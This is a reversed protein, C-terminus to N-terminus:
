ATAEVKQKEEQQAAASAKKTQKMLKKLDRKITAAIKVSVKKVARKTKKSPSEIHFGIITQNVSDQIKSRIEKKSIGSEQKHKKPTEKKM